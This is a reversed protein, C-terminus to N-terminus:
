KGKKKERGLAARRKEAASPKRVQSKPKPKPADPELELAHALHLTQASLPLWPPVHAMLPNHPKPQELKPPMSWVHRKLKKARLKYEADLFDLGQGAYDMYAWQAELLPQDIHRWLFSFSEHSKAPEDFLAFFVGAKHHDAWHCHAYRNRLTVCYRVAGLIESFEGELGVEKFHPRMLADAATIRSTEGFIRFMMRLARDQEGLITGLCIATRLEIEGYSIVINGAIAAQAPFRGIWPNLTM